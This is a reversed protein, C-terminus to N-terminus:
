LEHLSALSAPAAGSRSPSGPYLEFSSRSPSPIAQSFYLFIPHRLPSKIEGLQKRRWIKEATPKSIICWMTCGRNPAHGGRRALTPVCADISLGFIGSMGAQGAEYGWLVKVIGDPVVGDIRAVEGFSKLTKM